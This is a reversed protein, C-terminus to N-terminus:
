RARRCGDVFDRARDIPSRRSLSRGQQRCGPSEDGEFSVHDHAVHAIRFHAVEDLDDAAVVRVRFSLRPVWPVTVRISWSPVADVDAPVVTPIESEDRALIFPAHNVVLLRRFGLGILVERTGCADRRQPGCRSAEPRTVPREGLRAGSIDGRARFGV